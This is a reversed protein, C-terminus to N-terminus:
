NIPNQEITSALKTFKTRITERRVYTTANGITIKVGLHATDHVIFEGSSINSVEEKLVTYRATKEEMAKMNENYKETTTKLSAINESNLKKGEALRKKYVALIQSDNTLETQIQAIEKELSVIENTIEPDVGVEVETKTEMPSGINKCEISKIARTIGGVINGKRGNVIVNGKTSIDSYMIAETTIDGDARIIASEIFKSIINGKAILVGKKRGQVGKKVIINGGAIIQACEVVGDVIVDAKAKVRFGSMVSGSIHVSGPFEIDGTNNDVSEKVEYMDSVNVTDIDLTVHGSALSILSLGDDSLKVNTGNRLVRKPIRMARILAGTVDRGDKSPVMPTMTALVDGEKVTNINDLSHFDVSGDENQKPKFDFKTKFNYTIKAEVGEQPKSGLAIIYDQCYQRNEIFDNIVSDQIGFVIGNKNLGDIIQQKTLLNGEDSPMYFRVQAQMRDNSIKCLMSEDQPDVKKNAVLIECVRGSAIANALEVANYTKINIRTLYNTVEDISLREKGPFFKIHTTNDRLVLKFCSNINEM